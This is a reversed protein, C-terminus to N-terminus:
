PRILNKFGMKTESYLKKRRNVEKKIDEGFLRWDSDSLYYFAMVPRKFDDSIGPVALGVMFWGVTTKSENTNNAVITTEFPYQAALEYLDAKEKCEYIQILSPNQHMTVLVKIKSPLQDVTIKKSAM